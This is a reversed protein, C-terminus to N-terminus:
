YAGNESEKCKVSPGIEVTAEPADRFPGTNGFRPLQAKLSPMQGAFTLEWGKTNRHYVHLWEVCAQLGPAPASAGYGILPADSQWVASGTGEVVIPPFQGLVARGDLRGIEAGLVLREGLLGIWNPAILQLDVQDKTRIIKGWEAELRCALANPTEAPQM